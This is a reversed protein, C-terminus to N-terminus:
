CGRAPVRTSPGQSGSRWCLSRAPPRLAWALVHCLHAGSVCDIGGVSVWVGAGVLRYGSEGLDCTTGTRGPPCLCHGTVPDCPVGLECDCQQGCGEGFSGPECGPLPVPEAPPSLLQGRTLSGTRYPLPCLLAEKSPNFPPALPSLPSGGLLSRPLCGRGGWAATIRPGM